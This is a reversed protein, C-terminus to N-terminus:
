QTAARKTLMDEIAVYGLRQAIQLADQGQKDKLAPNAGAALLRQVAASHGGQTALMLATRGAEDTANIEASSAQQLLTTLVSLQGTRAANLLANGSPAIAALPAASAAPAAPAAPARSKMSAAPAALEADASKAARSQATAPRTPEKAISDNLAPAADRTTDQAADRATDRAAQPAPLPASQTVPPKAKSAIAPTSLTPSPAAPPAIPPAQEAQAPQATAPPAGLAKDKDQKDSRDFQLMLLTSIGAIALSAVLSFNWRPWNAAQPKPQMPLASGAGSAIVQAHALAAQRVRESPRATQEASAELYRQKLDDLRSAQHPTRPNTM